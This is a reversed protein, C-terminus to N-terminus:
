GTRRRLRGLWGRVQAQHAFAWGLIVLIAFNLTGAGAASLMGLQQGLEGEIFLAPVTAGFLGLQFFPAQPALNARATQAVIGSDVQGGIIFATPGNVMAAGGTLGNPLDTDALHKWEPIEGQENPVAWYLESHRGQGDSGGAVYISGNATFVAAGNRAGPLNHSDAAGWQVVTVPAPPENPNVFEGPAPPAVGTGLTGRQVAGSPGNADTGGVLWLFDGVQVAASHAMPSVLPAGEAWAGLAGKTDVTTKWTTAVPKGEGDLGGIVAIGDSLAVAAAGARPQPLALDTSPEWTGLAGSEEDTGLVWATNSPAGGSGAGGFAYLQSGFVALAIGTRAEPLQPGAQWPTFNGDSTLDAVYVTDTPQSGDTGGVYIIWSGLQAVAGETRAAPLALEQPSPQWPLVAGVPAPCPLTQNEPPCFNIPSWALLGVDITRNVILYYARDPVYGLLLIIVILWVFAKISAWGWGEADLLGFLARRRPKPGAELALSM